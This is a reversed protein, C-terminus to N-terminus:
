KENIVARYIIGTDQDKEFEVRYNKETNVDEKIFTINQETAEYEEGNFNIEKIQRKDDQSENNLSITSLLGKVTQAQLNTGSYMEFKENFTNIQEETLETRTIIDNESSLELVTPLTIMYIIPNESEKLGLEEMQQKNVQTIRQVVASLFNSVQESEYNTLIMSNDNTFEEISVSDMFNVNNEFQYKYQIEETEMGLEYVENISQMSSIGSYSANLYIKAVDENQTVEVSVNYAINAQTDEKQINIKLENTSITIKNTVGKKSYVTIEINQEAWEENNISDIMDEIDSVSIKASNQITKIYENIKDLTTQDNKLTELLQILVNKTEEGTLSLKYGTTDSEKVKSFKEKRLQQNLVEMYTNQINSKQEDTLEVQAIKKFKEFSSTDIELSSNEENTINELKDTEVAIFKNGVYKTQLGITNEIQKYSVPFNVEDSYNLSIDQSAKSNATDVQGSFSINFNNVNEFQEQENESTINVSLKGEDNYPTIKRKEFYQKLQNDILGKESDGIQTIYKFFLDKESKFIDTTLYIFVAGGVLIIILVIIILIMLIKTNKKQNM